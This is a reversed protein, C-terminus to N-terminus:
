AVFLLIGILAGLFSAAINVTDNDLQKIGGILTCNADCHTAKETKKSCVRCVYKAQLTAGLLSDLLAGFFGGLSIALAQKTVGGAPLFPDQPTILRIQQFGYIAHVIYLGIIGISIAGVVGGILGFVTVGGSVGPEVTSLNTILKPKSGSLLGLETSATDASAAAIAGMFGVVFIEGHFLISLVAFITAPLGNAVVSRWTRAGGKPEAAGLLAKKVYGVRTFLSNIALFIILVGLFIPGMTFGVALGLISATITGFGDLFGVRYAIPALGCVMLASVLPYVFM